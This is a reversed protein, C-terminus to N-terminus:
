NIISYSLSFYFWIEFYRGEVGVKKGPRGGGGEGQTVYPLHLIHKATLDYCKVVAVGAKCQERSCLVCNKMFKDFMHGEWPVCNQLFHELFPAKWLTCDKLFLSSWEPNGMSWPEQWFVYKEVSEEHAIAQTDGRVHDEMSQLCVVQKVMTKERPELLIKAGAGAADGEGEEEIVQTEAPSNKECKRM